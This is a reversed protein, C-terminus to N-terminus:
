PGVIYRLPFQGRSTLRWLAGFIDSVGVLKVLELPRRFASLIPKHLNLTNWVPFSVENLGFISISPILLLSYSDGFLLGASIVYASRAYWVRTIVVRYCSDDQLFPVAVSRYQSHKGALYLTVVDLQVLFSRIQSSVADSVLRYPILPRKARIHGTIAVTYDTTHPIYEAILCAAVAIHAWNSCIGFYYAATIWRPM